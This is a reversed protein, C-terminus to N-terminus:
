VPVKFTERTVAYTIIPAPEVRGKSSGIDRGTEAFGLKKLVRASAPNDEFCTAAIRNLPFRDFLEPVLASMAETAIGQGWYDPALAYMASVPAGGCGAIGIVKKGRVIGLMFGPYGCWLRETIYARAAEESWGTVLSGTQRTVDPVALTVLAPADDECLPRLTLRPTYITLDRRAEWRERTLVVDTSPVDQSLSWSRRLGGGSAVFGLANLLAGSRLNGNFFGSELEGHARNSFWHEVVARAAEFGYGKRWASRALWYGLEEEIGVVGAFGDTDCIAWVLRREELVRAIFTEADKRDYPYPVVALWRSVDYNGVGRVIAEADNPDLPRLTLRPTRLCALAASKM